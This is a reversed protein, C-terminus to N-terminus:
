DPSRDVTRDEPLVGTQSGPHFRLTVVTGGDNKFDLTGRLQGALVKMITFGLHSSDDFDPVAALGVGNDRIEITAPEGEPWAGSITLVPKESTVGAFAHKLCNTMAENLILGCPVADNLSLSFREFCFRCEVEPGTQAMMLGSALSRAYEAFDLEGFNDSSYLQEHVLAISQIRSAADDIAAHIALDMAADSPTDSTLNKQLSLLSTVIQLNNKVRHHVERLLIEKEHLSKEIDQRAQVMVTTDHGIGTAGAYKGQGDITRVISWAINRPTGDRSLVVSQVLDTNREGALVARFPCGSHGSCLSTHFMTGILENDGYGLVRNLYPNAYVIRGESDLMVALLEISELMRSFGQEREVLAKERTGVAGIMRDLSEGVRMFEVFGEGFSGLRGYDGMAIRDAEVSISHFAQRIRRFRYRWVTLSLLTFAVSMTALGLHVRGIAAVMKDAPYLVLVYWSPDKLLRGSVYWRQDGEELMALGGSETAKVIRAFDPQRERQLVLLPDPHHIFVGRRDTIRISIDEDVLGAFSSTFDRLWALDLDLFVTFGGSQFGYTVAPVMEPLSIYSDSWYAGTGNRVAEYLTEGSRSVGTRGPEAPSVALVLSSPAVMEIRKLYPLSALMEDLMAQVDGAPYRDLRRILSDVRTSTDSVRAFFEELRGAVLMANMANGDLVSTQMTSSITGVSLITALMFLAAFLLAIGALYRALTVPRAM